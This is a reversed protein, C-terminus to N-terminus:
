EKGASHLISTVLSAKADTYLNRDTRYRVALERKLDQYERLSEPHVRLYDRFDLMARVQEHERTMMHLHHTHQQFSIDSPKRFYHRGPIGNEDFYAYDIRALPKVCREVMHLTSVIALIDIVPKAALGPISTSGVHHIEELFDGILSVIRTHEEEYLRPWTPDYDVVVIPQQADPNNM